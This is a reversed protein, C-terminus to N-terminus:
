LVYDLSMKLSVKDDKIKYRTTHARAQNGEIYMIDDKIYLSSKLLTSVM